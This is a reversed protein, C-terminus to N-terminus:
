DIELPIRATGVAQQTTANVLDMEFNAMDGKPDDGDEFYLFGQIRGGAELVGEPLAKGVMQATPLPVERFAPYYTSYFWPDYAFPGAFPSLYPYYPALHPAIWFRDIAYPYPGPVVGTTGVTETGQIQFPPLAMRTMGEPPVLRFERYRVRIPSSGTNEITVLRPVVRTLDRPWGQWMDAAATVKVGAVSTSGREEPEPNQRAADAFPTAVLATSTVLVLAFITSRM